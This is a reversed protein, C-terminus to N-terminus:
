WIGEEDAATTQQRAVGRAILEQAGFSVSRLPLLREAGREDRLVVRLPAAVTDLPIMMTHGRIVEASNFSAVTTNLAAARGEGKTGQAVEGAGRPAARRRQIRAAHPKPAKAAYAETVQGASSLKEAPQAPPAAPRTGAAGGAVERAAAPGTRPQTRAAQRFYLSATVVLFLAAVAVPALAYAARLGGFPGRRGASRAAAMRARLRFEFDAPAEVKGLGSVLRRLSEHERLSEGCDRCSEAHARAAGGLDGRGAAEAIEPRYAKCDSM